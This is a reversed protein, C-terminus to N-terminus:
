RGGTNSISTVVSQSSTINSSTAALHNSLRCSQSLCCTDNFKLWLWPSFKHEEAEAHTKRPHHTFTYVMHHVHVPRNLKEWKMCCVNCANYWLVKLPLVCSDRGCKNTDIYAHSCCAFHLFEHSMSPLICQCLISFYLVSVIYSKYKPNHFGRQSGTANM